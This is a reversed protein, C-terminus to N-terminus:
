GRRASYMSRRREERRGSERFAAGEEAPTDAPLARRASSGGATGEPALLSGMFSVRDVSALLAATGDAVMAPLPDLVVREANACPGCLVSAIEGCRSERIRWGVDGGEAGLSRLFLEAEEERGFLVLAEGGYCCVTMAEVRGGVSRCIMWWAAVASRGRPENAVRTATRKEIGQKLM